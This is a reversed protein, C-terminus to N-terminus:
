EGPMRQRFRVPGDDRLWDRFELDVQGKKDRGWFVFCQRPPCYVSIGGPIRQSLQMRNDAIIKRYTEITEPGIVAPQQGKDANIILRHDGNQRRVYRLRAPPFVVMGDVFSNFQPDRDRRELVVACLGSLAAPERGAQIMACGPLLWVLLFPLIKKM